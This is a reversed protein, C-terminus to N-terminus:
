SSLLPAVININLKKFELPFYSNQENSAYLFSQRNYAFIFFHTLHQMSRNYQDATTFGELRGHKSPKKTEGWM